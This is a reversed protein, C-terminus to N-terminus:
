VIQSRNVEAIKETRMYVVLVSNINFTVVTTISMTHPGESTGIRKTSQGLEAAHELLVLLKLYRRANGSVIDYLWQFFRQAPHSHVHADRKGRCM